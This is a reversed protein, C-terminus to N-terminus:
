RETKKSDNIILSVVLLVAWVVDMVNWLERGLSIKFIPNILVASAAWVICWVRNGNEHESFGLFGFAFMALFRVLQYYGYPLDFLCLLFAAAMVIKTIALPKM